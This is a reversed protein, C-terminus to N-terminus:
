IIKNKIFKPALIFILLQINRARSQMKLRNKRLYNLQYIPRRVSRLNMLFHCIELDDEDMNKGYLKVLMEAQRIIKGLNFKDKFTVLRFTKRLKNKRNKGPAGLVNNEHQRYLVTVEDIYRVKGLSGAVIAFWWDHMMINNYDIEPIKKVILNRLTGNIMCTCGTVNNTLILDKFKISKYENKESVYNKFISDNEDMNSFHSHVLLSDSEEFRSAESLFISLKTPLWIDDQDSLMYYDAKEFNILKFFGKIIGYHNKDDIFHIRSDQEAYHQIIARTKDRSGDDHIVLKWKKYDQNIISEIQKSIFKEGNFTSMCILVYNDKM